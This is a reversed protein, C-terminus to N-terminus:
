ALIHGIVSFSFLCSSIFYGFIYSHTTVTRKNVDVGIGCHSQNLCIELYDKKGMKGDRGWSIVKRDKGELLLIHKIQGWSFCSQFIGLLLFLKSIVLLNQLNPVLVFLPKWTRSTEQCNSLWLDFTNELLQKEITMFLM